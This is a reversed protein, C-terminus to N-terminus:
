SYGSWFCLLAAWKHDRRAEELAQSVPGADIGPWPDIMTVGVKPQPKGNLPGSTLAVAHDNVIDLAPYLARGRTPLVAGRFGEGAAVWSVIGDTHFAVRRLMFRYGLEALEWRYRSFWREVADLDNGLRELENFMRDQFGPAYAGARAAIRKLLYSSAAGACASRTRVIDIVLGGQETNM